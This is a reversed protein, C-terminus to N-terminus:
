LGTVKRWLLAQNNAPMKFDQLLRLGRLEALECVWEFDRIGREPDSSRLWGDFDANSVSSFEGGYNFPGYVLLYGQSQLVQDVGRFFEAVCHESMFHLTNASFVVDFSDVPWPDMRVDLDVAALVNKPAENKLRIQLGPLYEGTDSPQWRVRPFDGGFYVTHQGTGSGVELVSNGDSLFTRLIDLIPKKNRECASSFGAAAMKEFSEQM